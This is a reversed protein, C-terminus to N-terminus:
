SNYVGSMLLHNGKSCHPFDDKTELLARVRKTPSALTFLLCLSFVFPSLTLPLPSALRKMSPLSSTDLWFVTATSPLVIPTLWLLATSFRVVYIEPLLTESSSATELKSVMDDVAFLSYWVCFVYGSVEVSRCTNRQYSSMLTLNPPSIILPSWVSYQIKNWLVLSVSRICSLAPVGKQTRVQTGAMLISCAPAFFM